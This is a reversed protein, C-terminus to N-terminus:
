HMAHRIIKLANQANEKMPNSVQPNINLKNVYESVLEFVQYINIDYFEIFAEKFFQGVVPIVEEIDQKEVIKDTFNRNFKLQSTIKGNLRDILDIVFLDSVQKDLIRQKM